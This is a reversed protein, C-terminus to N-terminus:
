LYSITSLRNPKKTKGEVIMSTPGTWGNIGDQNTGSDGRRNIDARKIDILEGDSGAQKKQRM